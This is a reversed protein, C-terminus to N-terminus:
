PPIGVHVVIEPGTVSQSEMLARGAHVLAVYVSPEVLLLFTHAAEIVLAPM